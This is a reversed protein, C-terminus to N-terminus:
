PIFVTRAGPVEPRQWVAEVDALPATVANVGIAGSAIEAVLAPMEGRYITPSVSGQGSGQIRLNASRLWASPLDLTPGTLAGIQVWDLPASSDSRARLLANMALKAPAAWLYDIVVDVDGAADGLAAATAGDDEGLRVMADAGLDALAALRQPDRGAGIVRSAGLRKAIQVAMAGANGTAGLVLVSRGPPFDIRRRLSVWSSMAPNMAAAVKAVDVGAPLEISRHADVLARDAMTGRTDSNASFYILTGDARRGVGDVGPILPLGGTSTYHAGRAGGRVRPHLGVALVDVLSEDPTSPEPTEFPQYHPPEDFSTVVAANMQPM